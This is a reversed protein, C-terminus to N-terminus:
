AAAPAARALLVAMEEEPTKWGLCKRPRTNLRREIQRLSDQGLKAFSTGKPYMRRNLGNVQENSGQEWSHYTRAFYVKVGTDAEVRRHQAFEKGNDVTLTKAV